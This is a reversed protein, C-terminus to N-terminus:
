LWKLNFLLWQEDTFEFVINSQENRYMRTMGLHEPVHPMIGEYGFDIWLYQMTDPMTDFLVDNIWIWDEYTAGIGIKSILQIV